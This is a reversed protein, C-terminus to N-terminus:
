SVVLLDAQLDCACSPALSACVAGDGQVFYPRDGGPLRQGLLPQVVSRNEDCGGAVPGDPEVANMVRLAPLLGEAAHPYGELHVADM